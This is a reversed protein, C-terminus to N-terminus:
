EEASGQAGQDPGPGPGMEESFDGEGPAMFSRRELMANLEEASIPDLGNVLFYLKEERKGM